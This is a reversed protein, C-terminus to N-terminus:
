AAEPAPHATAAERRRFPRDEDCALSAVGRLTGPDLAENCAEDIRTGIVDRRDPGAATPQLM